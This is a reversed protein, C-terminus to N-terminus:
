FHPPQLGRLHFKQVVVGVKAHGCGKNYHKSFFRPPPAKAGRAGGMDVGKSICPNYLCFHWHMTLPLLLM